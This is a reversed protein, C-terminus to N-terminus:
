HLPVPAAGASYGLRPLGYADELARLLGWLTYHTTPRKATVGAGVIVTPIHNAASRDDEDWAVVLLSQHSVAWRYYGDLHRQLWADGQHVTGDHMDNNVNPIVFSVTPLRTFDTPFTTLPRNTWGPLNTFDTWPAHRRAYAGYNCTKSGIAPLGESYGVFSYRAARLESGLNAGTYTLPCRDDRLGHTSGSFLGLYNPESPHTISYMRTPSIGRRALANIYPAQSSGIVDAYSHNEMMVVVIHRPRSVAVTPSVAAPPNSTAGGAQATPVSSGAAPAAPPTASSAATSPASGAPRASSGTTACAAVGVALAAGLLAAALIRPRSGRARSVAAGKPM